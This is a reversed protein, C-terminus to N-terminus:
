ASSIRLSHEVDVSKLRQGTFLATVENSATKTPDTGTAATYIRRLSTITGPELAKSWMHSLM